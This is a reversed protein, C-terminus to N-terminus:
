GLITDIDLENTCSIIFKNNQAITKNYTDVEKETLNYIYFQGKNGRGMSILMTPRAVFIHEKKGTDNTSMFAPRESTVFPHSRDTLCFCPVLHKMYGDWLTKAIGTMNNDKLIDYCIHLIFQHKFSDKLNTEIPHMRDEPELELDTLELPFVDFIKDIRENLYENSLFGRIDFVILLKVIESIIDPTIISSVAKGSKKYIGMGAKTKRIKDELDKIYTRWNSEYQRNWEKEIFIFRAESFYKKLEAREGETLQINTNDTIVWEDFLGFKAKRKKETNLLEGDLTVNLHMTPGFIEDLAEQPMFYCGAKIDYYNDIANIKKLPKSHCMVNIRDLDADIVSCSKEYLWVSTQKSNYSWEKMYCQPILHQNVATDEHKNAIPINAM